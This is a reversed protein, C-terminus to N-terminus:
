WFFNGIEGIVDWFNIPPLPTYPIPQPIPQQKSSQKPSPRKTTPKNQRKKSKTISKAKRSSTSNAIFKIQNYDNLVIQPVYVGWKIQHIVLKGSIQIFQTKWSKLNDVTLGQLQSLSTLRDSPVVIRFSRYGDILKSPHGFNLFFQNTNHYRTSLIQGSVTIEKGKQQVLKLTETAKFVSLSSTSTSKKPTVPVAPFIDCSLKVARECWYCKSYSQSYYHNDVKNCVKLESFAVQLANHWDEATPRLHPSGHGDNFCKLFLRKIEPHVVDLPITIQNPRILSNKGGYM